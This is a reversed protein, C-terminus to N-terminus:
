WAAGGPQGQHETEMVLKSEKWLTGEKHFGKMRRGKMLYAPIKKRERSVSWWSADLRVPPVFHIKGLPTVISSPYTYFIIDVETCNCCLTLFISIKVSMKAVM